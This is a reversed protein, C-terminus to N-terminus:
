PNKLSRQVFGSQVFFPSRITGYEHLDLPAQGDHPWFRAIAQASRM